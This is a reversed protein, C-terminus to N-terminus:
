GSSVNVATSDLPPGYLTVIVFPAPENVLALAAKDTRMGALMTDWGEEFVTL